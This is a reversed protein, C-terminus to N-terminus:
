AARGEDQIGSVLSEITRVQLSGIEESQYKENILRRLNHAKQLRELEAPARWAAPRAEMAAVENAKAHLYHLRSDILPGAVSTACAGLRCGVRTRLDSHNLLATSTRVSVTAAIGPLYVGKWAGRKENGDDDFKKKPPNVQRRLLGRHDVHEGQGVGVSFSDAHGLAIAVQGLNGSMGLNVEFGISKFEDLIAFVKRVKQLSDKEGSTPSVRVDVTRFGARGLERAITTILEMPLRSSITMIPRVPRDSALRTVEALDIVLRAARESDIFFWPPTVFDSFSPHAEITRIALQERLDASAALGDLNIMEGSYAALGELQGDPDASAMRDTRPDYLVSIGRGRAAEAAAQQQKAAKANLTIAGVGSPNRALFDEIKLHDTPSLLFGVPM